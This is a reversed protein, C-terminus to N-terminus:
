HRGSAGRGEEITWLRDGMACLLSQAGLRKLWVMLRRPIAMQVGDEAHIPMAGIPPLLTARRTARELRGRWRADMDMRKNLGHHCETGTSIYTQMAGQNDVWWIVAGKGHGIDHYRLCTRKLRFTRRASMNSVREKLWVTDGIGQAGYADNKGRM